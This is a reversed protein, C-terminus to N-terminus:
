AEIKHLNRHPQPDAKGVRELLKKVLESRKKEFAQEIERLRDKTDRDIKDQSSSQTGEYKKKFEELEKQKQAQIDAIEKEAESQAEKLKQSRYSRAQEVIKSAEKEAELLTQIGQSKQAVM